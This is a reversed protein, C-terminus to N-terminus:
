SNRKARRRQNRSTPRKLTEPLKLTKPWSVKRPEHLAALKALAQPDPFRPRALDDRQAKVCELAKDGQPTIPIVVAVHRKIYPSETRNLQGFFVPVHVAFDGLSLPVGSQAAMRQTMELACVDDVNHPTEAWSEPDRAYQMSAIIEMLCLM